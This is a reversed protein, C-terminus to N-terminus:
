QLIGGQAKWMATWTRIRTAVPHDSKILVPYAQLYQLVTIVDRKTGFRRVLSEPLLEIRLRGIGRLFACLAIATWFWVSTLPLPASNIIISSFAYM